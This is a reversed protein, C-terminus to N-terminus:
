LCNNRYGKHMIGQHRRLSVWTEFRKSCLECKFPNLNNHYQFHSKFAEENDFIQRCIDCQYEHDSIKNTLTMVKLSVTKKPLSPPLSKGRMPTRVVAKPVSVDSEGTHRHSANTLTSSSSSSSNSSSSSSTSSGSSSSSSSSTSPTRRRKRQQQIIIREPIFTGVSKHSLKQHRRLIPWTPFRNECIECKYPKLNNHQVVFHERMTNISELFIECLDCEFFCDLISTPQTSTAVETTTENKHVEVPKEKVNEVIKKEKIPIKKKGHKKDLHMKLANETPLKMHCVKCVLKREEENMTGLKLERIIQFPNPLKHVNRLHCRLNMARMISTKYPCYPCTIVKVNAQEHELGMHLEM